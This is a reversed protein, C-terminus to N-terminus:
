VRLIAVLPITHVVDMVHHPFGHVHSINTTYLWPLIYSSTCTSTCMCVYRITFNVIVDLYVHINGSYM